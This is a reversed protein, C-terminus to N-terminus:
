RGDPRRAFYREWETFNGSLPPGFIEFGESNIFHIPKKTSPISSEKPATFIFLISILIWLTLLLWIIFVILFGLCRIAKKLYEQREMRLLQPAPLQYVPLQVVPIRPNM